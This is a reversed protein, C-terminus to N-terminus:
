QALHKVYKIVHFRELFGMQFFNFCLSTIYSSSIYLVQFITSNPNLNLGKQSGLVNGAAM